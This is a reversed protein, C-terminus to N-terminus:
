ASPTLGRAAGPGSNGLAPLRLGPQRGEGLVWGRESESARSSTGLAVKGARHTIGM